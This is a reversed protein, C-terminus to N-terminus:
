FTKALSLTQDLLQSTYCDCVAKEMAPRNLVLIKGRRLQIDEQAQLRGLILSVVERRFGLLNAIEQQTTEILLSLSRDLTTLMWRLLQQESSHHKSCVLTQAMQSLLRTQGLLAGRVYFPSCSAALKLHAVSMKYALGENRVTARYFSPESVAGVGVMCTKGFVQAEAGVGEPLDLFMSVLANEPYYVYQPQQGMFFLTEGKRLIVPELHPSFRQYEL